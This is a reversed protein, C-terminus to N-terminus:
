RVWVCLLVACMAAALEAIKGKDKTRSVSFFWVKLCGVSKRRGEKRGEQLQQQQEIIIIIIIVSHCCCGGDIAESDSNEKPITIIIISNEGKCFM